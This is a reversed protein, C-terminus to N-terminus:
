SSQNASNERQDGVIRQWLADAQALTDTVSGNTDIVVDAIARREADTAQHAIRREAEARSMGRLEVLRRIRTEPSAEAIVVLDWPMELGSEVILPVDYVIVAAPDEAVIERIRRDALARVEPHVIANLGQLAAEDGFVIRGLAARDLEGTGTFVGDGFRQRIREHGRTGPEVVDRALQDADLRFAGKAALHRAITSKGSAIGGTVGILRAGNLQM